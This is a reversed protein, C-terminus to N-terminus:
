LAQLGALKNKVFGGTPDLLNLRRPLAPHSHSPRVTAGGVDPGNVITVRGDLHEGITVRHWPCARPGPKRRRNLLGDYGHRESRQRWRRMSRDPFGIMKAAQRWTIKKALERETAVASYKPM